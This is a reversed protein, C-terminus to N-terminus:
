KGEDMRVIKPEFIGFIDVLDQQADMVDAIPKYALPAEDTGGGILSVGQKRLSKRLEHMTTAESAAKRSLLRGAGHSASFLSKRNGRGEVLYAPATMSGPIIGLEGKAAPTAGKRHVIMEKGDVKTKWAFNHHNEVTALPKMGIAKAMRMHIQDHCAKAYDGALNMAKWYERGPDTDMALWALYRAEAPLRCERLALDTYYKAISAGMGRSGSHSLLGLYKGAPLNLPNGDHLQLAGIDVFHNGSGSTGLQKYAKDKLHRLLPTDTFAPDHMVEHDMPKPCRQGMGFFTSDLLAKKLPSRHRELYSDPAEFVSLAMRCGIDVGVGYPIVANETALVGGIPLGYGAHADPMLASARAVPLRSAVNIQHFATKDILKRGFVECDEPAEDLLGNLPKLKHRMMLKQAIPALTEHELYEKPAELLASLIDIKEQKSHYKFHKAMINLALSTAEELEFGIKKLDKGKIKNKGM